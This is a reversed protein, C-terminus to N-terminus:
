RTSTTAHAVATRASVVLTRLPGSEGAERWASDRELKALTDRSDNDDKAADTDSLEDFPVLLPHTRILYAAKHGGLVFGESLMFSCWRDHELRSLVNHEMETRNAADAMAGPTGVRRRAKWHIPVAISSAYNYESSWFTEVAPALGDSLNEWALHCVLGNLEMDSQILADYGYVEALDGVLHISPIKGDGVRLQAEDMMGALVGTIKSSNKSVTLIQPSRGLRVCERFLEVAVRLNRTDDGLSIFVFDLAEGDRLTKLLTATTADVGGHVTITTEAQLAAHAPNALLGPYASRIKAEADADRDFAHVRLRVREGDPLTMRCYWTLARLMEMGHAGLGIVAASITPNASDALDDRFLDVGAARGESSDRWLWDYVLTRAPNIRRVRIRTSAGRNMLALDGEITTALVYLDTFDRQALRDHKLIDVAYFANAAEDEGIIFLRIRAKKTRATLPSTLLDKKLCIAKLARARSILEASPNNDSLVVNTFVLLSQPEREKLSEALALSQDNLESFANVARRHGWLLRLTASPTQFYALAATILLIPASAHMVGVALVQAQAIGGAAERFPGLLGGVDVGSTFVQVTYYLSVAFAHISGLLGGRTVELAAPLQTLLIALGTGTVLVNLPSRATSTPRRAVVVATVIATLWVVIALWLWASM